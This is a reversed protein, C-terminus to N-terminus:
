NLLFNDIQIEYGELDVFAKLVRLNYSSNELEDYVEQYISMLQEKDVLILNPPIFFGENNTSCQKVPYFKIAEGGNLKKQGGKTYGNIINIFWLLKQKNLLLLTNINPFQEKTLKLNFYEPKVVKFNHYEDVIEGSEQDILKAWDMEKRHTYLFSFYDFENNFAFGSNVKGNRAFVCLYKAM